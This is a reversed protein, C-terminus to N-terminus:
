SLNRRWLGNRRRCARYHRALRVSRSVARWSLNETLRRPPMATQALYKAYIPYYRHFVSGFPDWPKPTGIFHYIRDRYDNNNLPAIPGLDQNYRPHLKAFNKYFVANLITQDATVLYTSYKAGFQWCTDAIGEKRWRELDLLLVGSNFVPAKLDMGLKSYFPREFAYEVSGLGSAGLAYGDLGENYLRFIDLTIILDSDCCITRAEPVCEPVLLKAYAFLNGVLPRFGKFKEDSVSIPILQFEQGAARCTQALLRLDSETLGKHLLYMKLQASSYKLMSSLTVHLGRLINRDACLAVPVATTMIVKDWFLV